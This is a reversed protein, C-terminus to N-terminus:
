NDGEEYPKTTDRVIAEIASKDVFMLSLGNDKRFYDLESIIDRGQKDTTTRIVLKNTEFDVVRGSRLIISVRMPLPKTAM